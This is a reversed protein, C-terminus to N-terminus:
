DSDNDQTNDYDDNNNQANDNNDNNDEGNDNAKDTAKDMKKSPGTSIVTTTKSNDQPARITKDTKTLNNADIDDYDCPDINNIPYSLGTTRLASIDDNDTHTPLNNSANSKNSKLKN